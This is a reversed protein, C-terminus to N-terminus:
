LVRDGSSAASDHGTLRLFVEELSSAGTSLKLRSVTDCALLRGADIVAVRDALVEVEPAHAFCLAIFNPRPAPNEIKLFRRFEAPLSPMSAARPSTSCCFALGIFFPALWASGSSRVPPSRAYRAASHKPVFSVTGRTTRNAPGRILEFASEIPRLLASKAHPSGRTSDTTPALM